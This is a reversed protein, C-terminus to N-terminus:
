GLAIATSCGSFTNGGLLSGGIHLGAADDFIDLDLSRFDTHLLVTHADLQQAMLIAARQWFVAVAEPTNVVRAHSVTPAILDNGQIELESYPASAPVKLDVRIPSSSVRLVLQDRWALLNVCDILDNGGWCVKM